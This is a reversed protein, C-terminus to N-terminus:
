PVAALLTEFGAQRLNFDLLSLLDREDDVILIAPVPRRYLVGAHRGPPSRADAAHLPGGAAADRWGFPTARM